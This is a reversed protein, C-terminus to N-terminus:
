GARGQELTALFRGSERMPPHPNADAPRMRHARLCLLCGLSWGAALLLREQLAPQRLPVVAGLGSLLKSAETRYHIGSCGFRVADIEGRDIAILAEIVEDRMELLLRALSM